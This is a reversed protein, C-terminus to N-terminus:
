LNLGSIIVIHPGRKRHSLQHRCLELKVITGNIYSPPDIQLKKKGGLTSDHSITFDLHNPALFMIIYIIYQFYNLYKLYGKPCLLVVGSFGHSSFLAEAPASDKTLQYVRLKASIQLHGHLM